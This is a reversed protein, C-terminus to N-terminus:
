CDKGKRNACTKVIMDTESARDMQPQLPFASRRERCYYLKQPGRSKKLSGDRRPNTEGASIRQRADGFKADRVPRRSLVRIRQKDPIASSLARVPANRATM